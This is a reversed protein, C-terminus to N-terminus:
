RRPVHALDRTWTASAALCESRSLDLDVDDVEVRRLVERPRALEAGLRVRLVLRGRARRVVAFALTPEVFDLWGPGNPVHYGRARRVWALLPTWPWLRPVSGTAANELWVGLEAAEWTTIAPETATWVVGDRTRVDVRVLLWNADWDDPGDPVHDVFEYGVLTLRVCAGSRGILHM